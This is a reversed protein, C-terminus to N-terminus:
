FSTSRACIEPLKSAGSPPNSAIICTKNKSFILCQIRVIFLSNGAVTWNTPAISWAFHNQLFELKIMYILMIRLNNEWRISAEMKSAITTYTQIYAKTHIKNTSIETPRFRSESHHRTGNPNRPNNCPIISWMQITHDILRKWRLFRGLQIVWRYCQQMLFDFLFLNAFISM